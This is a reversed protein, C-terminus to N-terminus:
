KLMEEYMPISIMIILGMLDLSIFFGRYKPSEEDYNKHFTEQHISFGASISLRYHMQFAVLEWDGGYPLSILKKM